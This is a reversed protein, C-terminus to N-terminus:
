GKSVLFKLFSPLIAMQFMFFLIIAIAITIQTASTASRIWPLYRRRVMSNDKYNKHHRLHRVPLTELTLQNPDAISLQFSYSREAQDGSADVQAKSLKSVVLALMKPESLVSIRNSTMM